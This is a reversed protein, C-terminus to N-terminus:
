APLWSSSPGATAPGLNVSPATGGSSSSSSRAVIGLREFMEGGFVQCGLWVGVIAIVLGGPNM